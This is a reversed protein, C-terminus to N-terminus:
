EAELIQANLAEQQAARAAVARALPAPLDAYDAQSEVVYILEASYIRELQPAHNEAAASEDMLFLKM